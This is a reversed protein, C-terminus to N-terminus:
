NEPDIDLARFLNRAKLRMEDYETAPDSDAVIGGGAHIRYQQGDYTMTRIAINFESRDGDIYGICGTYVGRPVSEVEQIIEVARKKPAGSISGGPLMARVVDALGVDPRLEASVNSV